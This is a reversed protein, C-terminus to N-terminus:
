YALSTVSWGVISLVAQMLLSNDLEFLNIASLNLFRPELVM